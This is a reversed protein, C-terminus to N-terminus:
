KIFMDLSVISYSRMFASQTLICTYVGSNQFTVHLFVISRPWVLALLTIVRTRMWAGKFFVHNNVASFFWKFALYTLTCEGEFAIKCWMHLVVISDLTNLAALTLVSTKIWGRLFVCSSVYCRSVMCIYAIHSWLLVVSSLSFACVFVCHSKLHSWHSNAVCWAPLRLVCTLICM